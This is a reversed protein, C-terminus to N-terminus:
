GGERQSRRRRVQRIVNTDPAITAELLQHLTHVYTPQSTLSTNSRYWERGDHPSIPHLFSSPKSFLRFPNHTTSGRPTIGEPNFLPVIKSLKAM